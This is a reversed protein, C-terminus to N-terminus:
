RSRPMRTSVKCGREIGLAADAHDARAEADLRLRARVARVVIQEVAHAFGSAPRCPEIADEDVLGLEEGGVLDPLEGADGVPELDRHHAEAEAGVKWPRSKGPEIASSAMASSSRSIRVM